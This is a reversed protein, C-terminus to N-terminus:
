AANQSDRERREVLKRVCARRDDALGPDAPEGDPQKVLGGLLTAIEESRGREWYLELFATMADFAEAETLDKQKSM